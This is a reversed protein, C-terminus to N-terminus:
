VFGEDNAFSHKLYEYSPFFVCLFQTDRLCSVITGKFCGRLGFERFRTITSKNSLKRGTIAAEMTATQMGIKVVEFPNKVLSQCVASAIAPLIEDIVKPEKDVASINMNDKVFDNVTLKVGQVLASAM